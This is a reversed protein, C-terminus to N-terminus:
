MSAFDITGVEEIDSIEIDYVTTGTVTIRYIKDSEYTFDPLTKGGLATGVSFQAFAQSPLYEDKTGPKKPLDIQFMLSKNSNINKNGTSTYVIESGNYFQMGQKHNNQVVLYACGSSFVVHEGVWDSTRLIHSASGPELSFNEVCAKGDAKGGTYKPYVTVIENRATNFKRFVPFILYDGLNVSYETQTMNHGAYGLVPGGLGDQRLEVNFGSTNYLTISGEGGLAGSIEYILNNEANTNFYAWLRAFPRNALVELNDIYKLYDEETIVFLVFDSSTTFLTTDKKLGHENGPGAPIGGLLNAANPAGKFAVLKKTSNNKVKISFDTTYNTYDIKDEPKEEVPPNEVPPNETPTKDGFLTDCAVFSFIAFFCMMVLLFKNFIKM